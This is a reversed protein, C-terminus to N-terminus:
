PLGEITNKLENKLTNLLPLMQIADGIGGGSNYLLVRNIM